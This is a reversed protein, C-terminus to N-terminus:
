INIRYIKYNFQERKYIRIREESHVLAYNKNSKYQLDDVIDFLKTERGDDSKRLGRGISQLIRIQAKSPSTFIINHLNRINIGTSFTGLSAVIIADKQTETIRRIADRDSTETDGSVFFIKRDSEIKDTILDYLVKGHKEVFQFLVLTNGTQTLALNRIFKNRPQHKVIFDIEDQYKVKNNLKRLEEPYDLVIMNIDLAALTDEDQLKKTTTVKKLKGFLGELVLQHTQTGDLTGTTGFRYEANRSKLMISSLSKSKFGHCEDGFIIGFQEFWTPPLKYISQWTSIFVKEMINIKPKGEYIIHCEDKVNFDEDHSSYDEFDSRMQEVLGTTPVIVLVKNPYNKMYWRLLVYIILSKGSGTPSLLIARKRRIGECIADFQYDRIEIPNGKTHLNLSKIFDMIVKPDVTNFSEPYGYYSDEMEVNYNRKSAFERIHPVLGAHIERNQLNFLRVKGDWVKNKYLPMFKYGPVFFSFYDNLESAIGHDCGVILTSHNKKQLVVKDAV